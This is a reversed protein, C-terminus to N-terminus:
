EGEKIKEMFESTDMLDNLGFYHALEVEIKKITKDTIEKIKDKELNSKKDKFLNIAMGALAVGLGKYLPSSSILKSTIGLKEKLQEVIEETKQNFDIKKAEEKRRKVEDTVILYISFAIYKKMNAPDNEIKVISSRSIGIKKALDEQTWGLLNRIGSVQSGLGTIYYNM